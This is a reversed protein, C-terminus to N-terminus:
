NCNGSCSFVSMFVDHNYKNAHVISAAKCDAYSSYAVSTFGNKECRWHYHRGGNIKIQNEKGIKKLM